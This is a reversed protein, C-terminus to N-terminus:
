GKILRSRMKGDLYELMEREVRELDSPINSSETLPVNLDVFTTRRTENLFWSLARDKFLSVEEAYDPDNIRNTLEFPDMALDFFLSRTADQDLILKRDHSRVMISRSDQAIVTSRAHEHGPGVIGLPLGRMDLAAKGGVESLITATVDLTNVLHDNLSGRHRQGPFKIILPVKALPDYMHNGKLLLHHFGLYEGHDSTFVILTNDYLNRRKLEDIIRGIHHDVHTITAYYYATVRRLAEPTLASNDFYGPHRALDVSSEADTWGPLITIDAPDYYRDWPAPPDFPHHPKLFGVMLLNPSDVEWESVVSVAQNGVWTTIHHEDALDSVHAGFTEWYEEPAMQRYRREQDILDDANILGNDRLYRHYDDVNRGRGNQEALIMKDFGVDQYAPTFHMKGVAATRYGTDRLLTAFTSIAPPLTSRNSRGGHQHVYQGTLLSLRSPTCVPWVCFSNKYLVGDAALADLHPTDIETNGMAGLCDFRHEDTYLILVNPRGSESAKQAMAVQTDIFAAAALILITFLSVSLNKM